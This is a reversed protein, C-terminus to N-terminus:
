KKAHKLIDLFADYNEMPDKSVLPRLVRHGFLIEGDVPAEEERMKPSIFLGQASELTAGHEAHAERDVVRRLVASTQPVGEGSPKGRYPRQPPPMPGQRPQLLPPGLRDKTGRLQGLNTNSSSSTSSNNSSTIEETGQLGGPHVLPGGERIMGRQEQQGHQEVQQERQKHQKQHLLQQPQQQKPNRTKEIHILTTAPVGPGRRAVSSLLPLASTSRSRVPSSAYLPPLVPLESTSLSASAAVSSSASSTASRVCGPGTARPNRGSFCRLLRPPVAGPCYSLTAPEATRSGATSGADAGSGPAAIATTAAAPGKGPNGEHHSGAPGGLLLSVTPQLLSPFAGKQQKQHLQQLPLPPGRHQQQRRGSQHQDHLAPWSPALQPQLVKRAGSGRRIKCHQTPPQANTVEDDSPVSAFSADSEGGCGRSVQLM